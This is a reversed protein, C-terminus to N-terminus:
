TSPNADSVARGIETLLEARRDATWGWAGAAIILDAAVGNVSRKGHGHSRGLGALADACRERTLNDFSHALVRRLDELLPAAEERVGMEGYEEVWHARRGVLDVVTRLDSRKNTPASGHRVTAHLKTLADIPLREREGLMALVACKIAEFAERRSPDETLFSLAQAHGIVQRAHEMWAPPVAAPELQLDAELPVIPTAPAEVDALLVADPQGADAREFVGGDKQVVLADRPAALPPADAQSSNDDTEAM